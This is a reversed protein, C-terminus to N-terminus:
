SINKENESLIKPMTFNLDNNLSLTQNASLLKYNYFSTLFIFLPVFKKM